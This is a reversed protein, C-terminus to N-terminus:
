ISYINGSQGPSMSPAASACLANGLVATATATNPLMMRPYHVAESKVRSRRRLPEYWDYRGTDEITMIWGMDFSNKSVNRERMATSRLEDKIFFKPQNNQM